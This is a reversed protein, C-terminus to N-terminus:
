SVCKSDCISCIDVGSMLCKIVTRQNNVFETEITSVSQYDLPLYKPQSSGILFIALNTGTPLALMYTLTCAALETFCDVAECRTWVNGVVSVYACRGSLFEFSIGVLFEGLLFWKTLLIGDFKLGGSCDGQM